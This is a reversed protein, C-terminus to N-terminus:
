RDGTHSAVFNRARDESPVPYPIVYRVVFLFFALSGATDCLHLVEHSQIFGPVIVPWKTLECVAGFTYCSAGLWAWNMARWGLACYYPIGPVFGLWGLGLYLGVVLSHPPKPLFWQAAVGALAFGWILRLFWRRWAGDLLVTVLPTNTGAILLYIASQDLKQYFRREEESEFHLGHFLGSALFLVVMSAGYVLVALRRGRDPPTLRYMIMTAFVAWLATALHSVSSVPDRLELVIVM